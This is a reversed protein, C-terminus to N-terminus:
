FGMIRGEEGHFTPLKVLGRVPSLQALDQIRKRQERFNGRKTFYKMNFSSLTLLSPVRRWHWAM